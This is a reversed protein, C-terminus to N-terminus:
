SEWEDNLDEHVLANPERKKKKKKQLKTIYGFVRDDLTFKVV